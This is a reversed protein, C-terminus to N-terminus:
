KNLENWKHMEQDIADYSKFNMTKLGLIIKFVRFMFKNLVVKFLFGRKLDGGFSEKFRQISHYKSNKDEEIRAGVFSFSKVGENRMYKIVEWYLLNTAGNIQHTKSGAYIPYCLNKSFYFIIACQLDQEKFAFFAKGHVGMLQLEKFQEKLNTVQQDSREWTENAITVFDDYHEIGGTKVVVDNKIAHRIATRCKTNMNAFLVEESLTLDLVYNGFPIRKSVTPFDTFFSTAPTINVWQVGLNNKLCDMCADLFDKTSKLKNKKLSHNESLINAWQFIYRKTIAIPIIYEESYLFYMTENRSAILLSYEESFFVNAFEINKLIDVPLEGRKSTYNIKM